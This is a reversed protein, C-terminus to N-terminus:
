EGGSQRRLRLLTFFVCSFISLSGLVSYFDPAIREYFIDIVYAFFVQSYFMLSITGANGFSYSKNMLTHSIFNMLGVATIAIGDVMSVENVGKIVQGFSTVLALFVGFHFTNAYPTTLSGLKKLVIQIFGGLIAGTVTLLIGLSRYEFIENGANESFIFSPKSILVVGAFCFVSNLFMILDYTEGLFIAALIAAIAPTTMQLASAESLPLLVFGFIGCCAGLPGLIARLFLLKTTLTKNSCIPIKKTKLITFNYIILQVAIGYLMQFVNLHKGTKKVVLNAIVFFLHCVLAYSYGISSSYRKELASFNLVSLISNM